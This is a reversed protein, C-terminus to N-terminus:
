PTKRSAKKHFMKKITSFFINMCLELALGVIILLLPLVVFMFILPSAVVFFGITIIGTIVFVIWKLATALLSNEETTKM